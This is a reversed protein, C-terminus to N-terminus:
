KYRMYMGYDMSIWGSQSNGDQFTTSNHEARM